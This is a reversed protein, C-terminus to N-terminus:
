RIRETKRKPCGSRIVAAGNAKNWSLNAIGAKAAKKGELTVAEPMVAVKYEDSYASFM